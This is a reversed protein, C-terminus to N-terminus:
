KSGRELIVKGKEINLVRGIISAHINSGLNGKEVVGIVQGEEVYEGVKVIAKGEAGIHQKLPIYVKDVELPKDIMPAELNYRSLGLRQLLRSSPVGRMERYPDPTSERVEPKIGNRNLEGKVAMMLAGPQLEQHCSYFMCLNCGVCGLAVQCVEGQNILGNAFANMLKHPQVNHGLQHRPCLVTCYDCQSCASMVRKVSDMDPRQKKQVLKHLKPLLIIGNTTKSIPKDKDILNGTMPGGELIVYDEISPKVVNLLDVVKTGIPVLYTGRNHVEGTVTVYKHTVGKGELARSINFLTEMNCVIVNKTIPLQGEPIIRGTCEYILVVEDGSPYIDPLKHISINKKGAIAKELAAISEIYKGKLGFVGQKINLSKLIEELTEVLEKAYKKAINQDVQLLPECEAGNILLYDVDKVLKKHTPFGAGGAGVVGAQEILKILDNSLM